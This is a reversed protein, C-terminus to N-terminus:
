ILKALIKMIRFDGSPYITGQLQLNRIVPLVFIPLYNIFGKERQYKIQSNLLAELCDFAAKKHANMKLVITNLLVGQQENTLDYYIKDVFNPLLDCDGIDM